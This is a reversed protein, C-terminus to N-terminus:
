KRLVSLADEFFRERLEELRQSKGSLGEIMEDLEWWILIGQRAMYIGVHRIEHQDFRDLM